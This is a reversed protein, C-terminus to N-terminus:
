SAQEAVGLLGCILVTIEYSWWELCIVLLTPLGLSLFVGLKQFSTRDPWTIAEKIEADKSNHVLLAALKIFNSLSGAIGIGLIGKRLYTVFIFCCILHIIQGFVQFYLPVKSKGLANLFRRQADYLGRLYLGPM